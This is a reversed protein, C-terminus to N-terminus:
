KLKEKIEKATEEAQEKREQKIQELSKYSGYHQKIFVIKEGKGTEVVLDSKGDKNLEIEYVQKARGESYGVYKGIFYGPTFGIVLSAGVTILAIKGLEVLCGAMLNEIGKTAENSM